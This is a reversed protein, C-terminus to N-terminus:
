RPRFRAIADDARTMNSEKTRGANHPTHVVNDRGLLPSDLPLPEVDFVDCALSLEDNLVRRYLAKTDCVGARSCLVVLSGHPLSEVLEANIIGRTEKRLPVIPAFIDADKLLEPLHFCREVGAVAFTADKAFPDWMAVDAGIAACWAAYRAGINGAGYIRVRKGELTGNVFNVDDGFQTGRKGPEGVEPTYKWSDHRQMMDAYTQPIRRLACLTLALAFEAVSQGWQVDERQYLITVGRAEAAEIGDTPRKPGWSPDFYCEELATFPALDEKGGPLGLLVLRQVTEPSPVMQPANADPDKSRYLESGGAAQWRSHWHDATFPWHSDYSEHVCIVSRM